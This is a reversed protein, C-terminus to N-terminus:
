KEEINSANIKSDLVKRLTNEDIPRTLVYVPESKTLKQLKEYLEQKKPGSRFQNWDVGILAVIITGLVPAIIALIKITQPVNM